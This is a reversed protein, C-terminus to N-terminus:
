SENVVIEKSVPSLIGEGSGLSQDGPGLLFCLWCLYLASDGNLATQAGLSPVDM